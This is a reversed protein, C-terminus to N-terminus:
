DKLTFLLKQFPFAKISTLIDFDKLYIIFHIQHQM